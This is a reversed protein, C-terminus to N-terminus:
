ALSSTFERAWSDAAILDNVSPDAIDPCSGLARSVLEPIGNFSIKGEAFLSVAVEDAANLVATRVGGARFASRALGLCPFASDDPRGFTIQPISYFDPEGAIGPLRDPYTVAYQICLRMDPLALQAIVSNDRFCVMSHIMSERQIVVDIDKEEVGFLWCAEIVEFGKNMLTASDITIRRGMNWTPHKLADAATVEDLEQRTRGYFAGGSATLILKKVEERRGAKLCQFIACHESDVPIIETGHEGASKMVHKGAIVLSEKNALALRGGRSVAALTPVLGAKGSIANIVTKSSCASLMECIGDEGLYFETDTDRCRARLDAYATDSGVACRRVRFRRIQEELLKTNGFGSIAEVATGSREAVDLSQTGVSGSSGLVVVSGSYLEPSM